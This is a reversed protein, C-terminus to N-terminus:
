AFASMPQIALEGRDRMAAAAEVIEAFTQLQRETDYYFNSPHCWLHFTGGTARAAVLGRRAKAIV